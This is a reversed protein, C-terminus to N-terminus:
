GSNTHLPSPCRRSTGDIGPTKWSETSSATRSAAAALASPTGPTSSNPSGSSLSATPEAAESGSAGTCAATRAMLRSTGPSSTTVSTHRHSYVDCPWQPMRAPSSITLSAVTSCSARAASDCATAPASMTAGDSMISPRTPRMRSASSSAPQLWVPMM